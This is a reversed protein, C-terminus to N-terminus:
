EHGTALSASRFLSRKMGGRVAADIIQKRLAEREARTLSGRDHAAKIPYPYGFCRQEHSVYDLSGFLRQENDLTERETAGRVHVRWFEVDMDLRLLPTTRHLRLLYTVAGPPPLRRGSTLSLDWGDASKTPVRLYWHEATQPGELGLKERALDEIVEVSPLGHSKSLALFGVGRRRAEVCCLRKLHEYFLSNEARSVFPLSLTGDVLLLDLKNRSRIVRLAAGLEGTSRLQVSINGADAAHPRILGACLSSVNSAKRSERAKIHRYDSEEVVETVPAGALSAFAEDFARNRRAEEEPIWTFDVVPDLAPEVEKLGSVRSAEYCTAQALTVHVFSDAYAVSPYDGTGDVGAVILHKVATTHEFPRITELIKRSEAAGVRPASEWERMEGALSDLRQKIGKRLHLDFRM